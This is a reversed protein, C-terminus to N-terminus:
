GHLDQIHARAKARHHPLELPNPGPPCPSGRIGCVFAKVMCLFAKSIFGERQATADYVTSQTTIQEEILRMFNPLSASDYAFVRAITRMGQHHMGLGPETLGESVIRVVFDARITTYRLLVQDFEQHVSRPVTLGPHSQLDHELQSLRVSLVDVQTLINLFDAEKTMDTVEAIVWRSHM